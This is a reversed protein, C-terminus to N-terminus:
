IIEEANEEIERDVEGKDYNKKEFFRFADTKLKFCEVTPDDDIRICIGERPVQFHTCLPELEEMGFHEKDNKLAELINEHWHESVSIEPYLNALTGHYLTFTPHLSNALEEDGNVKAWHILANTWKDVESVNWERKTGDENITTIRYPMLFGHGVDCGYDYKKQAMEDGNGLYGVIEGYVTMGKPIYNDLMKGYKTYVDFKYFGQGQNENIYQNKIVGRSSYINEYTYEYEPYKVGMGLNRYVKNVIKEWISIKKPVKIKVKGSIFSTGHLKVSVNVTDEPKLKWM